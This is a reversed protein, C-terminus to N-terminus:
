PGSSWNTSVISVKSFARWGSSLFRTAARARDAQAFLATCGPRRCRLGEGVDAADWLLGGVDLLIRTPDCAAAEWGGALAQVLPGANALFKRDRGFPLQFVGSM